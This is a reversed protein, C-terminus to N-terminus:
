APAPRACLSRTSRASRPCCSPASPSRASARTDIVIRGAGGALGAIAVLALSQAIEVRVELYRLAYYVLAATLASELLSQVLVMPNHRFWRLPIRGGAEFLVVAVGSSWCSCGSARCRGPPAASDAWAPLAGVASYGVVKPLGSYRHVLHGAIAAVALLFSWQVTPLGASPRLWEAWIATIENM